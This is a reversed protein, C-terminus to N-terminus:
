HGRSAQPTNGYAGLGLCPSTFRDNVFGDSTWRGFQSQLHLDAPPNTDAFFPDTHLLAPGFIRTGAGAVDRTDVNCHDLHLAAKEGLWIERGYGAIQKEHEDAWFISQFVSLNGAPLGLAGGDSGAANAYFTCYAVVVQGSEGADAYVAGGKRPCDLDKSACANGHFVSNRVELKGGKKEFCIAGGDGEGDPPMGSFNVRFACNSIRADGLLYLAGGKGPRGVAANDVFTCNAVELLGARSKIAGGGDDNQVAAGGTFTLGDLAAHAGALDMLRWSRLLDNGPVGEIVSMHAAADRPELATEDGSFGGYMRLEPLEALLTRGCRYTGAAIWLTNTEGRLRNWATALDRYAYTWCSGDQFRSTNGADVHIVRPDRSGRRLTGTRFSGTSPAWADGMANTAYGRYYYTTDPTLPALEAQSTRGDQLTEAVPQAHEWADAV